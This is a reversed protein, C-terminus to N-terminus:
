QTEQQIIELHARNCIQEFAKPIGLKFMEDWQGMWQQLKQIASPQQHFLSLMGCELDKEMTEDGKPPWVMWVVGLWCKLKDWEQADKLFRTVWPNYTPYLEPWQSAIIALEVLLDWYHCSLHQTAESSQIAGLILRIWEEEHEVDNVEVHLSDLLSIFVEVGVEEFGEYGIVGISHILLQRLRSSFPQLKQFHIFYGVCTNLPGHPRPFRHGLTWAVLLDAIAENNGSTFIINALNHHYKTHTLRQMTWSGKPYHYRFGIELCIHLLNQGDALNQYNECIVSCWKYAMKTLWDPQNEMGVLGCLIYQLLRCQPHFTHIASVM